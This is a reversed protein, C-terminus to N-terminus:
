GRYVVRFRECVLAMDESPRRGMSPLTRSFFAWHIRRWSELTRDDEGEDYAFEADVGSFPRVKVETTEIICVPHDRGDLVIRRKGVEPPPRGEAEWRWLASCTATKRGDVVLGCLADAMESTDGFKEAEYPAEPLEPEDSWALFKRWFANIDETM